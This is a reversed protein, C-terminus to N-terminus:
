VSNEHCLVQLTGFLEAGTLTVCWESQLVTLDSQMVLSLTFRSFESFCVFIMVLCFELWM